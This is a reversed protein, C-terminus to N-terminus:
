FTFIQVVCLVVAFKYYAARQALYKTNQPLKICNKNTLM